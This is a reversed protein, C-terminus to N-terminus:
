GQEPGVLSQGRGVGTMAMTYQTMTNTIFTDRGKCKGNIDFWVGDQVM